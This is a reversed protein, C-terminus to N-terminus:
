DITRKVTVNGAKMSVRGKAIRVEVPSDAPITTWPNDDLKMRTSEVTVTGYSSRISARDADSEISHNGAILVSIEHGAAQISIQTSKACGILGGILAAALVSLALRSRDPKNQNSNFRRM